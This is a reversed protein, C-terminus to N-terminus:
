VVHYFANPVVAACLEQVAHYLIDPAVAVCVRKYWTTSLMLRLQRVCRKAVHTLTFPAVAAFM